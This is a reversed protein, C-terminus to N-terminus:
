DLLNAQHDHIPSYKRADAAQSKAWSIPRNKVFRRWYLGYNHAISSVPNADEYSSIKEDKLKDLLEGTIELDIDAEVLTEELDDLHEKAPGKSFIKKLKDLFSHPKSFSNKEM